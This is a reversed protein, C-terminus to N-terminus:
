RTAANPAETAGTDEKGGGLFPFAWWSFEADRRSVRPLEGGASDNAGFHVPFNASALPRGMARTFRERRQVATPEFEECLNLGNQLLDTKPDDEQLRGMDSRGEFGRRAHWLPAHPGGEDERVRGLNLVQQSERRDMTPLKVEEAQRESAGRVLYRGVHNEEFRARVRDGLLHTEQLNVTHCRTAELLEQRAGESLGEPLFVRNRLSILMQHDRTTLLSVTTVEDRKAEGFRQLQSVQQAIELM